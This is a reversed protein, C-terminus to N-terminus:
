ANVYAIFREFAALGEVTRSYVGADELVRQFTKGIEAKLIDEVNEATFTYNDRFRAFWAKHKEIAYNVLQRIRVTVDTM